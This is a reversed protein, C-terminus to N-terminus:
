NGLCPTGNPNVEPGNTFSDRSAQANSQDYVNIQNYQSFGSPGQNQAVIYMRFSSNGTYAIMGTLNQMDGPQDVTGSSPLHNGSGHSHVSGIIDDPPGSEILAVSGIGGSSFPLGHNIPGLRISGNSQRYLYAGWERDNLTEPPVQEAALRAFEKTAEAATADANWELATDPDACPDAIYNPDTNEAPELEWM